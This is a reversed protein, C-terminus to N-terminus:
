YSCSTMSTQSVKTTILM